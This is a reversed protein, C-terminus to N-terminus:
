PKPSILLVGDFTSLLAVKEAGLADEATNYLKSLTEPASVGHEGLFGPLRLDAGACLVIQWTGDRRALLSRGGLPGLTWGALANDGDVMVLAVTLPTEPMDFQAKLIATIAEPDAMGTTDVVAKHMGKHMDHANADPGSGDAAGMKMHSSHDMQGGMQGEGDRANDVPAEVVVEGAHEFVLTLTIIDGDKLERTLGMLMVHDGGRKLDYGGLAPIAFGEPVHLMKMVGNGDDKHAHLQAKQAADTRVDLLRDDTDSHNTMELFIAGSKGIGGMTRAYANEIHVGDHAFAPLAFLAAAAAILIQFRTM